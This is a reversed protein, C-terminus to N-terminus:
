ANRWPSAQWPYLPLLLYLEDAHPIGDRSTHPDHLVEGTAGWIVVAHGAEVGRPSPGGAIIPAAPPRRPSTNIYLALNRTERLWARIANWYPSPDDTYDIAPVKSLTCGALTALCARMCEGGQPDDVTPLQVRCVQAPVSMQEPPLNYIPISM